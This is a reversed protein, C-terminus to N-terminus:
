QTSKIEAENTEQDDSCYESDDSEVDYDVEKGSEECIIKDNNGFLDNDCKIESEKRIIEYNVGFLDHDIKIESEILLNILFMVTVLKIKKEAQNMKIM